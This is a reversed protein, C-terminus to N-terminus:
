LGEVRVRESIGSPEFGFVQGYFSLEAELVRIQNEAKRFGHGEGEITIHAVPTGRERLANAMIEAQEPPVVRDDLGQFLIIPCTIRDVHNIPSREEYAARAEPYPGVLWDLYRSEFKHTDETLLSLDAVGFLSAGAAFDDRFALVALTTYGGASGGRIAMRRGDIVGADALHRAALACDRVDVIGWTGALREWYARGYGSSGGYDVDVVGIGRSTWFQIALNLPTYAAGTPGGHSFVVLPPLTDEPGTFDPNRPPYWYAYAPGDPTAFVFKEAASLYSADIGPDNHPGIPESDGMKADVRVVTPFRDAAGAVLYAGDAAVAMQPPLYTGPPELERTEGDPAIVIMRPAWPTTAVALISGDALFGYRRFRFQWQCAGVDGDIELVPRPGDDTCRYLNWWGSRDSAFHLVADASWEPQFISEGRGGAVVVPEEEPAATWLTTGNWPMDPHDWTIFAITGGDPALRPNAYFDHGSAIVVPPGSGDLSIRVLENVPEGDVRHRERVAVLFGDGFTFDAYRLGAPIEPEPTIPAPEDGPAIRYLRQDEFSVAYVTGRHVGYAGGGYEHIRTRADFGEPVADAIRGDPTRRVVVSRGSEGPRTEVWYVDGGDIEISDAPRVAAATVIQPSIPSEWSGHPAVPM